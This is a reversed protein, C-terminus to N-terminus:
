RRCYCKLLPAFQSAQGAILVYTCAPDFIKQGFHGLSERYIKNERSLAMRELQRILDIGNERVYKDIKMRLKTPLKQPLVLAEHLAKGPKEYEVKTNWKKRELTPDIAHFVMDIIQDILREQEHREEPNLHIEYSESVNRKILEILNELALVAIGQEVTHENNGAKSTIFDFCDDKNGLATSKRLFNDLQNNFYEVFIYSLHNGGDSKGTRALVFYSNRHDKSAPEYKKIQILSLDTTGRGVDITVLRVEKQRENEHINLVKESFQKFGELKEFDRKKHPSYVFHAVAESEYMTEVIPIRTNEEVFKRIKEIHSLSYVNPMTLTLHIREPSVGKLKPSQLIFNQVVQTTLHQILIEPDPRSSALTNGFYVEPIIEKGGYQFPIKPNPMLHRLFNKPLFYTFLSKDYDGRKKGNEDIFKLEAHKKSLSESQFKEKLSIRTRLRPSEKGKHDKLLVPETNDLLTRAHAQLQIMEGEVSGKKECYAAMSESGFDLSVYYEINHERKGDNEKSVEEAQERKINDRRKLEERMIEILKEWSGEESLESLEGIQFDLLKEPVNIRKTEVDTKELWVPILFIDDEPKESEFEIAEEIEKWYTRKKKNFMKLTTDLLGKKDVLNNSLFALFFESDRIAKQIELWWRQGAKIEKKDIWPKFENTALLKEYYEMVREKDEKAYNLFIQPKVVM